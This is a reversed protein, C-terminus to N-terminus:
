IKTSLSEMYEAVQECALPDPSWPAELLDDKKFPGLTSEVFILDPSQIQICHFAGRPIMALFPLRSEYTGMLKSDIVKGQHDFRFLRALGELVHLTEERSKHLHPRVYAGKPHVIVMQQFLRDSRDHVCLRARRRPAKRALDRLKSITRYDYVEAISASFFVEESEKKWSEVSETGSM